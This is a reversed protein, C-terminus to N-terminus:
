KNGTGPRSASVAPPEHAPAAADSADPASVPDVEDDYMVMNPTSPRVAM